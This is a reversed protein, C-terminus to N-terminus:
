REVRQDPAPPAAGDGEAGDAEALAQAKRAARRGGPVRGALRSLPGMSGELRTLSVSLEDLSILLGQLNADMAVVGKDLGGITDPLQALHQQVEVLVPMAAEIAAMRQDMGDLVRTSEAVGAMDDRIQALVDTDAAMKETAALIGPLARTADAIRGIDNVLGPLQRLGGLVDGPVSLLFRFPVIV